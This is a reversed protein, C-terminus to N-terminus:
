ISLQQVLWIGAQKSSDIEGSIEAAKIQRQWDSIEPKPRGQLLELLQEGSLLDPVRGFRQHKRFAHCLLIAQDFSFDRHCLSLYILQETEANGLQEVLLAQLRSNKVQLATLLWSVDPPSQLALLLKQQYRSLRLRAHLLDPLNQPAYLELLKALLFLAKQPFVEKKDEASLNQETRQQTAQINQHLLELEKLAEEEKWQPGAPGFLAALLGSRLLLRVGEVPRESSLIKGLEDKVREGAVNQILKSKLQLQAFCDADVHMDLTVAHRVGKLMRLPDDVFSRASCCRVKRALLDVAADTPDLLKASYFPPLIPYALANITFDRLRLDAEITEARLPAFDVMVGTRLLVRSQQREQDLWFWRGRVGTAWEKALPTPDDAFALDVDEVHRKLILDRLAGGVFWADIDREDIMDLLVNLSPTDSLLKKLQPQLISLPM